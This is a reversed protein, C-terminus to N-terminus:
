KKTFTLPYLGELDSDDVGEGTLTLKGDELKYSEMGTGDDDTLYLVGGKAEFTGKSEMEDVSSTFNEKPFAEDLFGDLTYGMASLAEEVSVDLGEAAIMDEFYQTTGAKFSEIIDDIEKDLADEDVTMSYTNDDKFSLTLDLTFKQVTFYKLMDQDNRLGAAMEDNIMDTLDITAQWDGILAKKDGGGCGSCALLLASMLSLCVFLAASKRLNKYKM